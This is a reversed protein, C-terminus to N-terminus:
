ATRSDHDEDCYNHSALWLLSKAEASTNIPSIDKLVCLQARNRCIEASLKYGRGVCARRDVMDACKYECGSTPIVGTRSLCGPDLM